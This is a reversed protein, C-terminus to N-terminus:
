LQPLKPIVFPLEPLEPINIDPIEPIEPIDPLTPIAPIAPLKLQSSIPYTFADVNQKLLQRTIKRKDKMMKKLQKAILIGQLIKPDILPLKLSPISALAFSKLGMTLIRIALQKKVLLQEQFKTIKKQAKAKSQKVLLEVDKVDPLDGLAAKGAALANSAAAAADAAAGTAAAAAGAAAGAAAAGAAAGVGAASGAVTSTATKKAAAMANKLPDSM